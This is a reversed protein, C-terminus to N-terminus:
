RSLCSVYTHGVNFCPVGRSYRLLEEEEEEEKEDDNWKRTREVKRKRGGRM